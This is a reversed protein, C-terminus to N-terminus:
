VCTQSSYYLILSFLEMREEERERGGCEPVMNRWVHAGDGLLTCKFVRLKKTMPDKEEGWEVVSQAYQLSWNTLEAQVKIREFEDHNWSAVVKISVQCHNTEVMVGNAWPEEILSSTLQHFGPSFPAAGKFHPHFNFFENLRNNVIEPQDITLVVDRRKDVFM